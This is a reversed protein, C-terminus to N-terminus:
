EAQYPWRCRRTGCTGHSAERRSSPSTSLNPQQTTLNRHQRSLSGQMVRERPPLWENKMVLWALGIRVLARLLTFGLCPELCEKSSLLQSSALPPWIVRVPVIQAFALYALCQSIGPGEGNGAPEDLGPKTHPATCLKTKEIVRSLSEGTHHAPSRSRPFNFIPHHLGPNGTNGKCLETLQPHGQDPM